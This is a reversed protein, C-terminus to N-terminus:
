ENVRKLVVFTIDDFPPEDGVHARLADKIAQVIDDVSGSMNDIVCRELRELGFEEGAENRAETVGDTYLVVVDGQGVALSQEEFTVDPMVGLAMGHETLYEPIPSVARVLLTPNHGANAFRVMESSADVIIYFITVFLDSRADALILDNTRTLAEAAGRGGIAAARLLTRSLAMFLAAPVGKDATDAIAIGLRDTGDRLPIFDYFDGGVQRASRWFAAIQWGPLSPCREPLFSEQIKRAVRLEQELRQRAVAEDALQANMVAMATQSAIGALINTHRASPARAETGGGIVMVGVVDGKAVLPWALPASLQLREVVELPIDAPAEGLSWAAQPVRLDAFLKLRERPIGYVDGAVFSASAPDYLLILCTEVGVLLPTLRVVTTLIDRLETQSGVAEAVQLLAMNVWAEERQSALLQSSEIALAAQNAIGAILAAKRKALQSGEPSGVLMVGAREGRAYLPLALLPGPGFAERLRGPAYDLQLAEGTAEAVFLDPWDDAGLTLADFDPAREDLGFSAAARFVSGTADWLLIGCRDVGSLMPTIRVVTELVEEVSTAQTTAEAVQLLATSVWAQEREAAYLRAEHTAIAVQDALTRLIFLDEQTFANLESSEVDLAGLIRQGFTLPVALESRTEPLFALAVYHSDALVDNVLLPEGSQVVAGIIGQGPKLRRGRADKATTGALVLEDSDEERLAVAVFYYNFHSQILEVVRDFLVDIELIAAVQRSVEGILALQTARRREAELLRANAIVPAAQNAVISLLRVHDDDFVNPRDNQISLAGVAEEGAIIPVFVASRPPQNSLYRPRAPLADIEREFDHILLPQKSQRLWGILGGNQALDFKAPPLREGERIWLRIAYQDDEFLGIQFSSTDVIQSAKRHILECLADVDLRSQAISRGFDVLADLESSRRELERRSLVRRRVLFALAALAAAAALILLPSWNSLGANPM